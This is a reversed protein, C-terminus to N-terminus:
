VDEVNSETCLLFCLLSWPAKSSSRGGIQERAHCDHFMLAAREEVGGRDSGSTSIFDELM